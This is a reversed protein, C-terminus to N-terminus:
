ALRRDATVALLRDNGLWALAGGNGPRISAVPPDTRFAVPPAAGDADTVVIEPVETGLRVWAVRRGDPSWRPDAVGGRAAVAERPLGVDM